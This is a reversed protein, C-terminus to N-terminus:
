LASTGTLKFLNFNIHPNKLKLVALNIDNKLMFDIDFPVDKAYAVYQLINTPNNIRQPSFCLCDKQQEWCICNRQIM